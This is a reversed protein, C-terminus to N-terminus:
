YLDGYVNRILVVRILRDLRLIIRINYLGLRHLRKTDKGM